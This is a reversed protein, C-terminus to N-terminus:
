SNTLTAIGKAAILREDGTVLTLDFVTATAALFRDAPDRHPPDIDYTAMAVDNTVPTSSFGCKRLAEWDAQDLVPSVIDGEIEATGSMCGLWSEPSGGIPKGLRCLRKLLALCATQFTSIAM